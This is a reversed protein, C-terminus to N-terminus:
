KKILVVYGKAGISVPTTASLTLPTITTVDSEVTESNLVMNYEGEEIGSITVDVAAKGLNLAVVVTNDGKKKEYTLVDSNKSNSLFKVSPRNAM